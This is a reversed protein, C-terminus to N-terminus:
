TKIAVGALRLEERHFLYLGSFLVSLAIWSQSPIIEGLFIWGFFAAFIPTSFGAFSLFTATYKKLLFGYLNYCAFNSIIIMALATALFPGMDFVPSADWEGVVASHGLTMIGGALMSFGNVTIFGMGKSKVLQRLLIWGYVSSVAAVLVAIEPWSLFFFTGATEESKTETLLIPLLGVCGIVLGVWKLRTMKESLIWYSLLAAAFPSVSYIFCAKSSTLFQLGWFECANCVYINFFALLFLQKFCSKDFVLSKRDKFFQYALLVAGAVAFRSGVIFFPQAYNLSMKGFTFISAFLAYLLFVFFM